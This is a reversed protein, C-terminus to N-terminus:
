PLEANIQSLDAGIKALMLTLETSRLM